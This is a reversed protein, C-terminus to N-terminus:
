CPGERPQNTLRIRRGNTEQWYHCPRSRSMVIKKFTYRLVKSIQKRQIRLRTRDPCNSSPDERNKLTRKNKPTELTQPLPELTTLSDESQTELTKQFPAGSTETFKNSTDLCAPNKQGKRYGRPNDARNKRCRIM